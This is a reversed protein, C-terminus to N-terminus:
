YKANVLFMFPVSSKPCINLLGIQLGTFDDAYNVLAFQVGTFNKAKSVCSAFQLGHIHGSAQNYIGGFTVGYESGKSLNAIGALKWGYASGYRSAVLCGLQLGFQVGTTVNWIGVDLGYVNHNVGYPLALRLGYVDSDEPAIQLPAYFSLQLPTAYSDDSNEEAFARPVAFSIVIVLSLFFILGKM